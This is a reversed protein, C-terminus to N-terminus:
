YCSKISILVVHCLITLGVSLIPSPIFSLGALSCGLKAFKGEDGLGKAWKPHLPAPNLTLFPFTLHVGRAIKPDVFPDVCNG